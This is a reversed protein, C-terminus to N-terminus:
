SKIAVIGSREKGEEEKRGGRQRRKERRVSGKESGRSLYRLKSCETLLHSLPLIQM